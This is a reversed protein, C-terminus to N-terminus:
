KRDPWHIEREEAHDIKCLSEYHLPHLCWGVLIERLNRGIKTSEAGTLVISFAKKKFIERSRECEKISRQFEKKAIQSRAKICNLSTRVVANYDVVREQPHHKLHAEM